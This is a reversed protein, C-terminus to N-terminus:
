IWTSLWIRLQYEQSTLPLGLYIPLWFVFAAVVLFITTLGMFKLRIQYSQLWRDALWALGVFAYVAASMYLYM